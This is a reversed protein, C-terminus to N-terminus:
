SAATRSAISKQLLEMLDQTKDPEDKKPLSKIPIGKAKAKILNKLVGTYTDDYDEINFPKTLQAVLTEAMKVEDPSLKEEPINLEESSRVEHGFRLQNLVLAKEDAKIISLHERLRLVFKSVGVKKSDKLAKYLLAYAKEANKDPELYYPKDFYRTDIEREEAFSLINLTKSRETQAKKLDQDTIAVYKGDSIEYGRVIDHYTIEKEERECVKAYRVKSFDTKHLYDFNINKENTASYLKVPINVLGFSISGKWISRM